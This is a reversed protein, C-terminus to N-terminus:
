ASPAASSEWNSADRECRDDIWAAIADKAEMYATTASQIAAPPRLGDPAAEDSIRLPDADGSPHWVGPRSPRRLTGSAVAPRRARGRDERPGLRSLYARGCRRPFISRPGRPDGLIRNSRPAM